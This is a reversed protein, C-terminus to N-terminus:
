REINQRVRKISNGAHLRTDIDEIRSNFTAAKIASAETKGDYFKYIDEYKEVM